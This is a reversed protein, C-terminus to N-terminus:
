AAERGYMEVKTVQTQRYLEITWECHIRAAELLNSSPMETETLHVTYSIITPLM